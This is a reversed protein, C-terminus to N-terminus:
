CIYIHIYIRYLISISIKAIYGHNTPCKFALLVSSMLLLQKACVCCNCWVDLVYNDDGYKSLCSVIVDRRM